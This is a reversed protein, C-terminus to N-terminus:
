ETANPNQGLYLPDTGGGIRAVLRAIQNRTRVDMDQRDAIARLGRIIADRNAGKAVLMNAMDVAQREMERTLEGQFVPKFLRAVAAMPGGTATTQQLVKIEDDINKVTPFLERAAQREATQSGGLLSSRTGAFAGEQDATRLLDRIDSGKFGAARLKRRAESSSLDRLAASAGAQEAYKSGYTSRATEMAIRIDERMAARVGEAYRSNVGGNRKILDSIAAPSTKRSNLKGAGADTGDKFALYKQSAGRASKYVGERGARKMERDIADNLLESFRRANKTAIRTTAGMGEYSDGYKAKRSLEQRLIDLAHGGNAIQAPTVDPDDRAAKVVSEFWDPDAERIRNVLDVTPKSLTLKTDRFESYLPNALNSSAEKEALKRAEIDQGKGLAKDAADRLRGVSQRSRERVGERVIGQAPTPSAIAGQGLGMMSDGQDIVMGEPGLRRLNRDVEARGGSAVDQRRQAETMRRVAGGHMGKLADPKGYFANRIGQGAAGLAAGTGYFVPGAVGGIAGGVVGRATRDGTGEGEGFGYVAGGGAGALGAKAMSRAPTSGPSALRGVIGGVSRAAGVGGVGSAIGGALKAAGGVTVDGIGPLTTIVPSERDQARNYARQYELEEEYPRGTAYSTIGAAAEDLYSGIPTGRAAQWGLDGALQGAGGGAREASVRAEAKERTERAKTIEDQKKLAGFLFDLSTDRGQNQQSDDSQAPFLFGLDSM